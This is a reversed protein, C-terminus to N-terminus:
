QASCDLWNATCRLAAANSGRQSSHSRAQHLCACALKQRRVSRCLSVVAGAEWYYLRAFNETNFAAFGAFCTSLGLGWFLATTSLQVLFKTLDFCTRKNVSLFQRLAATQWELWTQWLWAEISFKDFRTIKTLNWENLFTSETFLLITVSTRSFWYFRAEVKVWAQIAPISVIQKSM